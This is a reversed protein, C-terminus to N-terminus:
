PTRRAYNALLAAFNGMARYAPGDNFSPPMVFRVDGETEFVVTLIPAPSANCTVQDRDFLIHRPEIRGARVGARFDAAWQHERRGSEPQHLLLNHIDETQHWLAFWEQRGAGSLSLARLYHPDIPSCCPAIGIEAVLDQLALNEATITLSVLFNDGPPKDLRWIVRTPDTSAGARGPLLLSNDTVAPAAIGSCSTAEARREEWNLKFSCEWRGTQSLRLSVLHAHGHQEVLVMSSTVEEEGTGAFGSNQANTTWLLAMM